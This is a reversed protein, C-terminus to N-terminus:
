ARHERVERVAVPADLEEDVRVVELARVLREAPEHRRVPEEARRRVHARGDLLADGRVRHPERVLLRRPLGEVEHTAKTVAVQGDGRFPAPQLNADAVLLGGADLERRLLLGM